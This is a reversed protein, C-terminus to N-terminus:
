RKSAKSSDGKGMIGVTDLTGDVEWQTDTIAGVKDWLKQLTRIDHRYGTTGEILSPFEGPTLSGVQRGIIVTDAKSRGFEVLLCSAKIQKPWPFLHFFESANIINMRGKLSSWDMEPNYVDGVIFTSKVNGRDM